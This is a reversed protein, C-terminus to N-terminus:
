KRSKLEIIPLHNINNMYIISDTSMHLSPVSVSMTMLPESREFPVTIYAKESVCCLKRTNKYM